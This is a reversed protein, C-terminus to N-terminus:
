KKKPSYKVNKNDVTQKAPRIVETPEMNSGPPINM